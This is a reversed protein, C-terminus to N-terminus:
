RDNRNGHSRGAQGCFMGRVEGQRRAIGEEAEELLHELLDSVSGKGNELM